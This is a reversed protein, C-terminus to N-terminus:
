LEVNITFRITMVFTHYRTYVAFIGWIQTSGILNFPMSISHGVQVEYSQLRKLSVESHLIVVM